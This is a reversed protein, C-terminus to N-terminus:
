PATLLSDPLLSIVPSCHTQLRGPVSLEEGWPFRKAEAEESGAGAERWVM